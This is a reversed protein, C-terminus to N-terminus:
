QLPNITLCLFGWSREIFLAELLLAASSVPTQQVLQKNNCAACSMSFWNPSFLCDSFAFGRSLKVSVLKVAAGCPVLALLFRHMAGTAKHLLSVIQIFKSSDVWLCPWASCIFFFIVSSSRSSMYLRKKNQGKLDNATRHNQRQFM